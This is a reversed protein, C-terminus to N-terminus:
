SKAPKGWSAAKKPATSEKSKEEAAVADLDAASPVVPKPADGLLETLTDRLRKAEAISLTRKLNTLFHINEPGSISAPVRNVFFENAM